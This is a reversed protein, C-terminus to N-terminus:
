QLARFVQEVHNEDTFRQGFVRAARGMDLRKKKDLYLEEMAAKINNILYEDRPLIYSAKEDCYERNGGSDTTILPLGAAMCELIANSAPEEWIPPLVAVDAAYLYDALADHPIEGTFVIKDGLETVLARVADFYDSSKLWINKSGILMLRANDCNLGAFAAVLEKVGKEPAIRGHFEYVVDERNFGLRGRLEEREAASKEPFLAMNIGQDIKVVNGPEVGQIKKVQSGIYDSVTLAKKLCKVVSVAGPTGPNLFDNGLHLYVPVRCIGKVSEAITVANEILVKDFQKQHRLLRFLFKIHYFELPMVVKFGTIKRVAKKIYRYVTKGPATPNKIYWFKTNVYKKSATYAEKDYISAVTIDYLHNKENYKIINEVRVEIAGNKVAPVPKSSIVVILLKEM